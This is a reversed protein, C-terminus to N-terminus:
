LARSFNTLHTLFGSNGFLCRVGMLTHKRILNRETTKFLSRSIFGGLAACIAVLPAEPGLSGGGLISFQSAALQPLVHDMSVYAKEHVCKVTYPLDGPEGMYVVTLGVGIAMTFGLIPIWFIDPVFEPLIKEPLEKWLYDLLFELTMYYLWAATGCVTGIVLAVLISHPVSGPVMNMMDDHFTNPTKVSISRGSAKSLMSAQRSYGTSGYSSNASGARHKELSEQVVDPKPPACPPTEAPTSESAAM